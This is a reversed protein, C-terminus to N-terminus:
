RIDLWVDTALTRAMLRAAHHAPTDYHALRLRRRGRKKQLKRISEWEHCMGEVRGVNVIQRFRVGDYLHLWVDQATRMPLGKQERGLPRAPTQSVVLCTVPAFPVRWRVYAAFRSQCRVERTTADVIVDTVSLFIWLSQLATLALLVAVGLGLTPLWSPNVSALGRTQSGIGLIFFLVSMAGFALMRLVAMVLWSQRRQWVYGKPVAGMSWEEFEFPPEQLGIEQDASDNAKVPKMPLTTQLPQTESLTNVPESPAAVLHFPRDIIRALSQGALKAQTLHERAHGSPWSALGCWRMKFGTDPQAALLLGLHWNQSETAWGVVVRAV